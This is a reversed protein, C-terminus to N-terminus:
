VKVKIGIDNDMVDIITYNCFLYMISQFMHELAFHCMLHLRLGRMVVSNEIGKPGPAPNM